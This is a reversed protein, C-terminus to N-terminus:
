LSCFLVNLIDTPMKRKVRLWIARYGAKSVALPLSYSSILLLISYVEYAVSYIGNGVDGIIGTLPIRYLMGIIRSIISAVALISGQILFNSKKKSNGM